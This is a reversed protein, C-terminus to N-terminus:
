SEQKEWIKAESIQRTAEELSYEDCLWEILASCRVDTKRLAKSRNNISTKNEM